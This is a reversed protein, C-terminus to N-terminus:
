SCKIHSKIVEKISYRFHVKPQDQLADMLRLLESERQLYQIERMARMIEPTSEERIRNWNMLGIWVTDTVYPIVAHYTQIAMDAGGLMPEMSVSTQYGSCCATKLAEIREGPLPAGPEWFKSVNDDTTNITFRFLIQDKFREFKQCITEICEPNPKSMVLVKNGADLINTLFIVAADINHPTIDHLTPAMVVGPRKAWKENVTWWRIKEDPWEDRSKIKNWRIAMDRAYCYLCNYSCGVQFDGVCESWERSGTGNRQQSFENLM